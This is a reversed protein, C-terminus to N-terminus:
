AIPAHPGEQGRPEPHPQDQRNDSRQHAPEEAPDTVQDLGPAPGVREAADQLRAPAPQAASGAAWQRGSAVRVWCAHLVAPCRSASGSQWSLWMGVRSRLVDAVDSPRSTPERSAVVSRRAPGAPCFCRWPRGRRSRRSRRRDRVRVDPGERTAPASARSVRSRGAAPASAVAPAASTSGNRVSTPQSPSSPAGTRQESSGHAPHRKWRRGHGEGHQVLNTSGLDGLPVGPVTLLDDRLEALQAPLCEFKGIVVEPLHPEPRQPDNTGGRRQHRGDGGPRAYDLRDGHRRRHM